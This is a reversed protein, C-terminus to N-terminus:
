RRTKGGVVLGLHHLGVGVGHYLDAARDRGEACRAPLVVRDEWGHSAIYKAVRGAMAGGFVAALAGAVGQLQLVDDPDGKWKAQEYIQMTELVLVDPRLGLPDLLHAITRWGEPGRKPAARPRPTYWGAALSTGEYYGCGLGHLGIDISLTTPM